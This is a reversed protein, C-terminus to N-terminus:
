TNTKIMQQSVPLYIKDLLAMMQQSLNTKIALLKTQKIHNTRFRSIALWLPIHYENSCHVWVPTCSSTPLMKDHEFKESCLKEHYSDQAFISPPLLSVLVVIQNWSFCSWSFFSFSLLLCVFSFIGLGFFLWVFVLLNNKQHASAVHLGTM